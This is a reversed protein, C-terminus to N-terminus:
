SAGGFVHQRWRAPPIHEGDGDLFCTRRTMHQNDQYSQFDEYQENMYSLGGILFCRAFPDDEWEKDRLTQKTRKLEARFLSMDRRDFKIWGYEIWSPTM